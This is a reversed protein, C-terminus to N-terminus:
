TKFNLKNICLFLIVKFIDLRRWQDEDTLAAYRTECLAVCVVDPQVREIVEEVERVSDASVHATGVIYYTTGDRELIAVNESFGEPDSAPVPVSSEPHEQQTQVEVPHSRRAGHVKM